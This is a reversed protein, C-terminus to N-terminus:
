KFTKAFFELVSAAANIQAEKATQGHNVLNVSTTLKVNRFFLDSAYLRGSQKSGDALEIDMKLRTIDTICKIKSDRYASNQRMFRILKNRAEKDYMESKPVEFSMKTFGLLRALQSKELTRADQSLSELESISKEFIIGVKEERDSGVSKTEDEEERRSSPEIWSSNPDPQVPKTM